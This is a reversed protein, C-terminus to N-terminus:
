FLYDITLRTGGTHEISAVVSPEGNFHRRRSASCTFSLVSKLYATTFM